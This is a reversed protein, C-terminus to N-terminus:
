FLYVGGDFLIAILVLLVEDQHLSSPLYKKCFIHISINFEAKIEEWLM